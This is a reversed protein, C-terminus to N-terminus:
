QTKSLEYADLAERLTAMSALVNDFAVPGRSAIDNFMRSDKDFRVAALAVRERMDREARWEPWPRHLLIIAADPVAQCWLIDDAAAGYKRFGLKLHVRPGLNASTSFELVRKPTGGLERRVVDGVRIESFTTVRDVGVEL